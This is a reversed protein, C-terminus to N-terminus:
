HAFARHKVAAPITNTSKGYEALKGFLPHHIM